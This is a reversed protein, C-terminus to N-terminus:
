PGTLLNLGVSDIEDEVLKSETVSSRRNRLPKLSAEHVWQVFNLRQEYQLKKQHHLLVFM